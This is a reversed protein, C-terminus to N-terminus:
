LVGKRVIHAYTRTHEKYVCLSSLSKRRVDKWALVQAYNKFPCYNIMKPSRKHQTPLFKVSNVQFYIKLLWLKNETWQEAKHEGFNLVLLLFAFGTDRNFYIAFHFFFIFPLIFWSKYVISPVFPVGWGGGLSPPKAVARFVLLSTELSFFHNCIM